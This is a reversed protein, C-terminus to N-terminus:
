QELFMEIAYRMDAVHGLTSFTHQMGDIREISVSALDRMTEIDDAAVIPDKDGYLIITPPQVNNLIRKKLSADLEDNSFFNKLVELRSMKVINRTSWDDKDSELVRYIELLSEHKVSRSLDDSFKIFERTSSTAPSLLVIKDVIPVGIQTANKQIAATAIVAGLSHGFLVIQANPNRNRIDAIFHHVQSVAIEFNPAPYLLNTGSGTYLFDILVDNESLQVVFDTGLGINIGGPGGSLRIIIRRDVSQNELKNNKTRTVILPIKADGIMIFGTIKRLQYSDYQGIKALNDPWLGLDICPFQNSPFNSLIAMRYELDNKLKVKEAGSSSSPRIAKLDGVRGIDVIGGNSCFHAGSVSEIDRIDTLLAVGKLHDSVLWTAMALSLTLSLLLGKHIM